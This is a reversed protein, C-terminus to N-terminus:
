TGRTGTKCTNTYNANQIKKYELVSKYPKIGLSSFATNISSLRKAHERKTAKSYMEKTRPNTLRDPHYMKLAKNRAAIIESNSAGASLGLSKLHDERTLERLAPKTTATESYIRSAPNEHVYGGFLPGSLPAANGGSTIQRKEASPLALRQGGPPLALQAPKVPSAAPQVPAAASRRAAKKQANDRQRALKSTGRISDGVAGFAEAASGLPMSFKVTPPMGSM